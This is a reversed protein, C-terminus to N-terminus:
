PVAVAAETEPVAVHAPQGRHLGSPYSVSAQEVPYRYAAKPSWLLFRYRETPWWVTYMTCLILEILGRSQDM